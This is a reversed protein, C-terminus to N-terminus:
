DKPSLYNIVWKGDKKVLDMPKEDGDKDKLTITAKDGDIKEAVVEPIALDEEQKVSMKMLGIFCEEASADLLGCIKTIQEAKEPPLMGIYEKMPAMAARREQQVIEVSSADVYSYAKKYDEKEIASFFAYVTATPGKSCGALLV